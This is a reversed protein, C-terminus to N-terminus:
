SVGPLQSYAIMPGYPYFYRVSPYAQAYGRATIWEPVTDLQVDESNASAVRAETMLINAQDAASRARAAKGTLPMCIYAALAYAVSMTLQPNWLGIEQRFTYVLVINETNSMIATTRQVGDNYTSLAFRDYSSIYRPVLMDAPTGYAFRFGPEPDTEAWAVTDDREKLVALRNFAKAENWPAARLVVDRVLGFWLRCVEAERSSENVSNVNSRAGVANLALNYIELENSM